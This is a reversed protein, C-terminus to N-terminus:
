YIRIERWAPYSVSGTTLVRVKVVNPLGPSFTQSLVQGDKWEGGFTHVRTEKGASDVVWVEHAAWGDPKMRAVLEIKQITHAGGLDIEVWQPAQADANWYTELNGDVVAGANSGASARIPRGQALNPPLEAVVLAIVGKDPATDGPAPTQQVVTGPPSFLTPTTNVFGVQWGAAQLDRRADDQSKGVVSPVRLGSSVSLRIITGRRVSTGPVPWQNLVTDKPRDDTPRESNRAVTLGLGMAKEQADSLSMGVFSPTEVQALDQVPGALALRGVFFTTLVAAVVVGGVIAPLGILLLRGIAAGIGRLVGVLTPGRRANALTYPVTAPLPAVSPAQLAMRFAAAHRYRRSPDDGLAYAVVRELWAPVAPNFPRPSYASPPRPAAPTPPLRGALLEYLLAALLYVDAPAGSGARRRIAVYPARAPFESSEAVGADELLDAWGFDTVKVNGAADLLVNEPRLDGHVIELRHAAQLAEAVQGAIELGRSPLLRDTSNLLKRVSGGEALETVVYVRGDQVGADLVRAVYPHELATLKGAHDLLAERVTADACLHRSFLKLAVARRERLDLAQYVTGLTGAGLEYELDYRGGVTQRIM